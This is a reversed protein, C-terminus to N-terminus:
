QPEKQIYLGKLNDSRYLSYHSKKEVNVISEDPMEIGIIGLNPALAFGFISDVPFTKRLNLEYSKGRKIKIGDEADVEKESIIKFLSDNKQAYIIYYSRHTEIKNINYLASPHDEKLSIGYRTQSCSICFFLILFIYYKM